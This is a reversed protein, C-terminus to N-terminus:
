EKDPRGWGMFLVLLFVIGLVRLFGLPYGPVAAYNWVFWAPAGLTLSCALSVLVQMVSDYFNEAVKRRLKRLWVSMDM